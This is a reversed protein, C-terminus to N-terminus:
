EVWPNCFATLSSAKGLNKGSKHLVVLFLTLRNIRSTIQSCMPFVNLAALLVEPIPEAGIMALWPQYIYRNENSFDFPLAMTSKEIKIKM